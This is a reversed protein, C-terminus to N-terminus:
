TPNLPGKFKQRHLKKMERLTLMNKYLPLLIFTGALGLLGVIFFLADFGYRDAVRAGIYASFAIAVGVAVDEVSWEFGTKGKDLHNTFIIRWAPVAMSHSLGYIAELLYIHWPQSAIIYFFPVVSLILSGVLMFYFEDKEGDTKDMFRSLPVATLARVLWYITTALGIVELSGGEIKNQIFIAFIPAMLGFGFFLMFDSFILIGVIRNIALTLNVKIDNM